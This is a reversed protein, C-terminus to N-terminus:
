YTGFDRCAKLMAYLNVSKANTPLDCSPMLIFGGENYKMEQILEGSWRYVSEPTGSVLLDTPVNGAYINRVGLVEAVKKLSNKEDSSIFSGEALHLEKYCELNQNQNGCLHIGFSKLGKARLKEHIELIYPLSFTEFTKRSILDNTEFPYNSSVSCNEVGFEAIVIDAIDLLYQEAQKVLKHVMQPEKKIWRLLLGMEVMSGVMTFPSGASIGIGMQGQSRAYKKFVISKKLNEWKSSDPVEYKEADELSQIPHIVKPLEVPGDSDFILKGGLDIVEGNPVDYCPNGDCGHMELVWKQAQYSKAADFYFEGATLGMMRGSYMTASSMFPVRDVKEGSYFRSMREASTMQDMM